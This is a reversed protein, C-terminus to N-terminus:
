STTLLRTRLTELLAPDVGVPGTVAVRLAVGLDCM